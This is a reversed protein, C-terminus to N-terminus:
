EQRLWCHDRKLGELRGRALFENYDGPRLKITEAGKGGLSFFVGGVNGCVVGCLGLELGATRDRKRGIQRRQQQFVLTPKRRHPLPSSKRLGIEGGFDANSLAEKGTQLSSAVYAGDVVISPSAAASSTGSSQIAYGPSWVM